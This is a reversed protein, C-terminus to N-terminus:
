QRNNGIQRFNTVNSTIFNRANTSYIPREGRDIRRQLLTSLRTARRLFEDRARIVLFQEYSIIPQQTQQLTLRYSEYDARTQLNREYEELRTLLETSNQMFHLYTSSEALLTPALLQKSKYEEYIVKTLLYAEFTQFELLEPNRQQALQYEQFEAEQEERQRRRLEAEQEEHQRLMPNNRRLETEQEERQRLIPNNRRLEEEKLMFDLYSSIYILVNPARLQTIRYNEFQAKTRLYDDFTQEPLLEPNRQQALQYEEFEAEQEERQRLIPNNHRLEEEKLMFDLYSSIYILVNPARLQTIRYNEFQAKTRLYDDFTQEPLLEPNRQQALQYEEFEAEQEERQRLMPNNRRLEAEPVPEYEQYGGALEQLLKEYKLKYKQAKLKYIDNM